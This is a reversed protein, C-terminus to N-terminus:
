RARKAHPMRYITVAPGTANADPVFAAARPLRFIRRYHDVIEPYRAAPDNLFRAYVAQSAVVYDVGTRRFERPDQFGLSWLYEVQYRHADPQPTYEERVIHSGVPVNADIWALARARTDTSSLRRAVSVSMRAPATLAIALVAIGAARLLTGRDALADLVRALGHGAVPCALVVVPMLNREFRVTVGGLWAFWGLVTILMVAAFWAGTRPSLTAADEDHRAPARTRVLDLVVGAAGVALVAFGASGLGEDRLRSLYWSWNNTGEAGLHGGTYHDRVVNLEAFFTHSDLIAYPCAVVFAAACAASMAVLAALKTRVPGHARMVCLLALAPLATAM